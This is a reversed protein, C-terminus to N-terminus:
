ENGTEPLGGLDGGWEDSFMISTVGVMTLM